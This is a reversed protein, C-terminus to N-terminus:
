INNMINIVKIDGNFYKDAFTEAFYPMGNENNLIHRISYIPPFWFPNDKSNGKEKNCLKYGIISIKDIEKYNESMVGVVIGKINGENRDIESVVERITDGTAVVDDLLLINKGAINNGIVANKEEKSWKKQFMFSVIDINKIEIIKELEHFLLKGGNGILIVCDIKKDKIMKVVDDKITKAIEGFSIIEMKINSTEIYEFLKLLKEKNKKHIKYCNTDDLIFMNAKKEVLIKM